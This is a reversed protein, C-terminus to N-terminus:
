LIFGGPQMPEVGVFDSATLWLSDGLEIQLDARRDGNTDVEVITTDAFAAFRVQGAQGSFAAGGIFSHAGIASADIKDEGQEFDLILDRNAAGTGSEAKSAFLFIDNGDGGTLTDRGLGGILVDNGAGGFLQDTGAGGNLRNAVDNGRLTDNGSGSTANEITVGNAITFGGFVGYAYSMWGGGGYEYQLTAPRLDINADRAGGYAITDTGGADWICEYYTGPANVDELTYVDNGTAWEENVGYKDQIAAIDFAMLGGLWGFGDTSAAQGYPSKEWGDEYSMMTYVSQNLDFDGNTYNAVSSASEQTVGHMVTSHGGNDHPHALGHGHGLEHILTTFSYGGPALGAETWRVDNANFETRGENEEGPPSMRGLLSPGVDGPTGDYTILIFDAASRDQVEVYVLDAVKSYAGFANTYADKEWQAMGKAVMTDTTGVTTPDEDIFIEGQKAFYYTVVNKGQIGFPNWATGTFENGTPRPGEAGDPNRSTRDIQSGWDISSLPSSDSYYSVFSSMSLTYDGAAGNSGAEASIFYTGTTPAQFNLQANVFTLLLGGPLAGLGGSALLNGNADYINFNNDTLPIGSPGTTAFVQRIDYTRGAELHVAFVDRDDPADITSTISGGDALTASTTFNDAITDTTTPLLSPSNAPPPAPAVPTRIFLEYDGVYNGTGEGTVDDDFGRANIYYTGSVTPTFVGLADLGSGGLSNHQSIGGNDQTLLVAGAADRVEFLSDIVPIGSPGGYKAYMGIEYSTGAQLEVRFWDQDGVTELTGVVAPGDFTLTASTTPGAPVSDDVLLLATTNTPVVSFNRAKDSVGGVHVSGYESGILRYTQAHQDCIWCM